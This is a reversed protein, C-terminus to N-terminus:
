PKAKDLAIKTISNQGSKPYYQDDKTTSAVM